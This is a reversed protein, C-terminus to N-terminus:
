GCKLFPNHGDALFPLGERIMDRYVQEPTKDNRKGVPTFTYLDQLLALNLPQMSEGPELSSVITPPTYGFIGLMDQVDEIESSNVPPPTEKPVELVQVGTNETIDLTLTSPDMTIMPNASYRYQGDQQNRGYVYTLAEQKIYHNYNDYPTSRWKTGTFIIENFQEKNNVGKIRDKSFNMTKQRNSLGEQLGETFDKSLKGGVINAYIPRQGSNAWGIMIRAKGDVPETINFMFKPDADPNLATHSADFSNLYTYQQQILHRLDAPNRLDLATEKYLDDLEKDIDPSTGSKLYLYIAREITTMTRTDGLDPMYLPAVTFTGNAMPLVVVPANEWADLQDENNNVAIQNGKGINVRGKQVIALKLNPDPLLSEDPNQLSIANGKIPRFGKDTKVMNMIVKGPGKEKIKMRVSTGATAKTGAVISRMKTLATKQVALNDIVTDTGDPNKVTIEAVINRLAEGGIGTNPYQDTLWEMSPLYGIVTGDMTSIKIPINDFDAINGSADLFSSYTVDRETNMQGPVRVTGKYTTDLELRIETGPLLSLPNLIQKPLNKNLEKGAIRYNKKKDQYDVTVLSSNQVKLIDKAKDEDHILPKNTEIDPANNIEDTFDPASKVEVETARDWKEEVTEEDVLEEEQTEDVPDTSEQKPMLTVYEALADATQAMGRKSALGEDLANIVATKAMFDELNHDKGAILETEYADFIGHVDGPLRYLLANYKDAAKDLPDKSIVPQQVPSTQVPETQVPVPTTQDTTVPEQAVPSAGPVLTTLYDKYADLQKQLKTIRAKSTQVALTAKALKLQWAVDWTMKKTLKFQRVKTVNENYTQKAEELERELEAIKQETAKRKRLIASINLEAHATAASKDLERQVESNKYRDQVEKNRKGMESKLKAMVKSISKQDQMMSRVNTRNETVVGDLRALQIEMEKLADSSAFKGGLLKGYQQETGEPNAEKWAAYGSSNTLKENADELRKQAAEYQKDMSEKLKKVQEAGVTGLIRYKELLRTLTADDGSKLANNFENIDGSIRAMIKESTDAIDHYEAAVKEVAAKATYPMTGYLTNHEEKMRVLDLQGRELIKEQSHLHAANQFLYDALGVAEEEPTNYKSYLNDHLKQYHKIDTIAQQAKEKYSSDETSSAFGREVAEPKRTNVADLLAAKDQELTAMKAPDAAAAENLKALEGAVDIDELKNPTEAIKKFTNIWNEGAGLQVANLALVNFLDQRIMEAEIKDGKDVATKLDQMKKDHWEFDKTIADSISDYYKRTQDHNRTRSSVRTFNKGTDDTGVRHLPINDLAITQAVGGLAGLAFNLLGEENSVDKLATGFDTLAETLSRKKGEGVRTGEQEAYQTNIEELGEQLAESTLSTLGGRNKMVGTSDAIGALRTKFATATEGELRTGNHRMFQMIKDESNRFLPALATMNLATNMLTNMQVTTSAADSAMRQAREHAEQGTMGAELGRRYQTNYASEFIRYGSMAGETYALTAATATQALVNSMLDTKKGISAAKALNGFMKGLYGAPIAFQTASELLSGVNDIWWASDTLDFVQNPNEKYIEGFPNKAQQMLETLSNTYDRDEGWETALAGMYGAMEGMGTIVNPIFNAAKIGLTEWFGQDQARLKENDANTKLQFRFDHQDLNQAAGGYMGAEEGLESPLVIHKLSLKPDPM